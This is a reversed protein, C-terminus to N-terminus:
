CSRGPLLPFLGVLANLVGRFLVDGTRAAFPVGSASASVLSTPSPSRALHGNREFVALMHDDDALPEPILDIVLPPYGLRRLAAAGFLAGDLCHGQRERLVRSRAATSINRSMSSLDLFDQIKRPTNLGTWLALEDPNLQEELTQATM